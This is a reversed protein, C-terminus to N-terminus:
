PSPPALQHFKQGICLAAINGANSAAKALNSKNYTLVNHLTAHILKYFPRSVTSSSSRIRNVKGKADDQMLTGLYSFQKVSWNVTVTLKCDTNTM